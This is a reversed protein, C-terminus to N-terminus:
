EVTSAEPATALDLVPETVRLAALISQSALTSGRIWWTPESAVLSSVALRRGALEGYGTFWTYLLYPDPQSGDPMRNALTGTKGWVRVDSPWGAQLAFANRATGRTCTTSQTVEVAAAVRPSIVQRWLHPEHRYVEHGDPDLVAEVLTPVMMRGENALAAQMLAGHLPSMTTHRFGAAARAFELRDSPLAATSREVPIEFPIRVNFAFREAMRTLSEPTLHADAFRAFVVNASTAMATTFDVCQTDRAAQYTLHTLDIGSSGGGYCTRSEPTIAGADLLAAGTIVKFVSAAWATARTSLGQPVFDAHVRDAMALVRGTDPDMIVTAQAPERHRSVSAELRPQLTPHLTLVALHGDPLDQVYRGLDPDLRVADLQIPINSLGHEGWPVEPVAARASRDAAAIRQMAERQASRTDLWTPPPRLREETLSTPAAIQEVVVLRRDPLTQAVLLSGSIAVLLGVLLASGLPSPLAIRSMPATM